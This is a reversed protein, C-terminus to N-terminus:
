DYQVRTPPPALFNWLVQLGSPQARPWNQEGGGQDPKMTETEEDADKSVNAHQSIRQSRTWMNNRWWPKNLFSSCFDHKVKSTRGRWSVGTTQGNMQCINKKYSTTIQKDKPLESIRMSYGYSDGPPEPYFMSQQAEGETQSLLDAAGVDINRVFQWTISIKQPLPQLAWQIVWMATRGSVLITVAPM